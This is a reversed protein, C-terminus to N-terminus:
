TNRSEAAEAKERVEVDREVERLERGLEEGRGVRGGERGVREERLQEDRARVERRARRVLVLVRVVRELLDLAHLAPPSLADKRAHADRLRQLAPPLLRPVRRVLRELYHTRGNAHRQGESTERPPFRRLSFTQTSEPRRSVSETPSVSSTARSTARLHPQARRACRCARSPPLPAGETRPAEWGLQPREPMRTGADHCVGRIPCRQRETRSEAACEARCVRRM